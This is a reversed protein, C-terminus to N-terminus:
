PHQDTYRRGKSIRRDRVLADRREVARSYREGPPLDESPDDKSAMPARPKSAMPGRPASPAISAVTRAELTRGDKGVPGGCLACCPDTDTMILGKDNWESKVQTDQVNM